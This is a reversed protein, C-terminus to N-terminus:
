VHALEQTLVPTREPSGYAVTAFPACGIRRVTDIFPEGARRYGLYAGVLRELTAPVEAAPVAPGLTAGFRTEDRHSGGISIQFYEAGQKNVGRLGIHALPHHACANMCGSCNLVLEGVREALDQYAFREQIARVLPITRVNALSCYDAGPCALLDTLLGVNPTALGAADAQRWLAYLDARRVQALVLHQRLSVRVEGFSYDDAWQAIELMQVATLDGPAQDARKTSLSVIAYGPRRHPQVNNRLWAGYAPYRELWQWHLPDDGPHDLYARDAFHTAVQAVQDEGLTLPGDALTAWEAAVRRRFEDIGLTRVLFKLRSRGPDDRRGARDFVRCIAECYSLLHQWPLFEELEVALMPLRGLGGGVVVRFGTERDANRVLTLGIDNSQILARDDRAGQVAIKLKRPLNTFGPHATSWQRLLECWPRPDLPEDAAVGALPDATINRICHGSTQIAHLQVRALDALLRPADELALWDIQFNHRTTFHGYGRGYTTTAQALARLQASSILGYPIAIRLMPGNREIYLGNQLRLPRLDDASLEGALHRQLQDRLQTVRGEILQQDHANYQYM